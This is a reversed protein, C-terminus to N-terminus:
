DHFVEQFVEAFINNPWTMSLHKTVTIEFFKKFDIFGNEDTSADFRYAGHKGIVGEIIKREIFQEEFPVVSYYDITKLTSDKSIYFCHPYLAMKWFKNEKTIMLFDRIQEQWNPLENDLNRSPTFLIQSLTEKNWEIFIKRNKLDVDYLKPTTKLDSLQNLFKVEREFFWQILDENVQTDEDSRYVTDNCYNMCMVTQEPNVTPTYLLNSSHARGDNNLKYYYNWDSTDTM